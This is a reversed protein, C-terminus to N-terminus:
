APAGSREILLHRLRRWRKGSVRRWAPTVAGMSRQLRQTQRAGLVALATASRADLQRRHTRMYGDIWLLSQHADNIRGLLAQLRRLARLFRRIPRSQPSKLAEVLYRLKKAELRLAHCHAPDLSRTARRAARRLKRYRHRVLLCALGATSRSEDSGPPQRALQQLSTLLRQTAPSQLVRRLRAQQRSRERALELLAPRLASGQTALEAHRLDLERAKGTRSLLARLRPLLAEAHPTPIAALWRLAAVMRRGSVRLAHLAAPSADRIVEPALVRWRALQRLLLSRGVATPAAALM